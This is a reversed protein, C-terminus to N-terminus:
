SGDKIPLPQDTRIFCNHHNNVARRGRGHSLPADNPGAKATEVGGDDSPVPVLSLLRVPPRSLHSWFRPAMWARVDGMQAGAESGREQAEMALEGTKVGDYKHTCFVALPWVVVLVTDVTTNCV